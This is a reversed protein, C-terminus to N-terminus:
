SALLNNDLISWGASLAGLGKHNQQKFSLVILPRILNNLTWCSSLHSLPFCLLNLVVSQITINWVCSLESLPSHIDYSFLINLMCEFHYSMLFAQCSSSLLSIHSQPVLCLLLSLPSPYWLWPSSALVQMSNFFWDLGFSTMSLHTIRLQHLNLLLISM